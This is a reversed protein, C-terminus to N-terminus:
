STWRKGHSPGEHQSWFPSWLSAKMDFRIKLATKIHLLRASNHDTLADKKMTESMPSEKVTPHRPRWHVSYRPAKM